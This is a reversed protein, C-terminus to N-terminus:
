ESDEESRLMDGGPPYTGPHRDTKQRLPGTLRHRELAIGIGLAAIAGIGVVRRSLEWVGATALALAGAIVLFAPGTIRCHYMRRTAFCAAGFAVFVASTWYRTLSPILGPVLIAVVAFVLLWILWRVLGARNTKGDGRATQKTM